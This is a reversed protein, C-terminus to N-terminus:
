HGVAAGGADPFYKTDRCISAMIFCITQWISVTMYACTPRCMCNSLESCLTTELSMTAQKIHKNGLYSDVCLRLFNVHTFLYVM